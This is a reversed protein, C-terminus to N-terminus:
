MIPKEVNIIVQFVLDSYNTNDNSSNIAQICYMSTVVLCKM